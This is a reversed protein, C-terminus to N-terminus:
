VKLEQKIFKWLNEGVVEIAKDTKTDLAPRMFPHAASGPHQVTNVVQGGIKLGKKTKPNIEHPQTGFEIFHAYWGDFRAKRGTDVFVYAHFGMRNRFARTKVKISKKLNGTKVPVNRKAEDRIVRAGASISKRAVSKGAKGSLKRLKKAIEKHGKLM